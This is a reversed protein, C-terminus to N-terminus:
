PSAAVVRYGVGRVTLLHKPDTPDEELKSRLQAIFNDVTRPTGHHHPGWVADMIQDRSLVRGQAQLLAVLIDFETVTLDVLEGSRRVERTEPNITVEGLRWEKEPSPSHDNRRLAARVRALLEGVSFPKTMYDDAGLDLGMIKDVESTRASLVLIPTRNHEARLTCVLEYGNMKPLMIDLIILNWSEGRARQLGEDGDRATGVDYGDAELNMRLGLLISEDDEIILIRYASSKM